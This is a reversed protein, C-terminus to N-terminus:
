QAAGEAIGAGALVPAKPRGAEIRDDKETAADPGKRVMRLMLLFGVPYMFLYVIIYAILSILVDSGTLSPSVSQATRLLGYVTWPQRGVETTVWGAIVAVFGIPLALQCVGLFWATDHLRGRWRLWGGLVVIGLMLLGCGVMIRFAFFPIAVPPRQDAPFEKLGMIEGDTSHTLILSGLLPVEIAAANREAKEDPLAFLTLPVRRGTEWIAEIAALKAPQHKLTNLGHQDGIFIQLPVLVTMLWLTMSLMTRGEEVFRGRRMLYAGVGLVVFGTTCFFAVVTHALRPLFSPNFIVQFWDTPFFRGDVIEYGAPTQMWSNASLIWFSSFLTGLAVMLAAVFHAWPPVLKRGFLLVGLFAAELFFATLGEYAFLPALVNATADSFRSWNTGFQFPMVIGTVVGMGFAVSFIKIWFMSVRLYVARGTALHFGELVAIFAAAGVTFAPLLIHWGIVWAFQLRSLM